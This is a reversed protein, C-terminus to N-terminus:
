RRVRYKNHDMIVRTRELQEQDTVDLFRLLVSM